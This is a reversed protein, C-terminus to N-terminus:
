GEPVQVDASRCLARRLHADARNLHSYVAAVMQGNAHGMLEAVTLHDTGGELLRQCFGHRFAYQCFRVGLHKELRGFRHGITHRNWPTGAANVFLPGEPREAALQEVIALSRGELLIRRWRTKGKAEDPPFLVARGGPAVHRAEIARAEQPRCGSHWCFELLTRFPDGEPFHDRIRAWDAPTVAAERRRARPKEVNRVPSDAIYGLKAAWNFPRQVAVIAGRRVTDGWAPHADVWETVHFPRLDPAPMRAPDDLSDVFDQLRERYWAYTGPARHRQCWDLFKEVVEAVSPGGAAAAPPAPPRAALLEHFRAVVVPPANWRGRSKRPRPADAPHEALFVQRGRLTVFWANRAARFWPSTSVAPM